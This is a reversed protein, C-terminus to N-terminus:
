MTWCTISQLYSLRDFFLLKAWLYVADMEKLCTRKESILQHNSRALGACKLFFLRESPQFRKSISVLERYYLICQNKLYLMGTERKLSPLIEEFRYMKRQICFVQSLAATMQTLLLVLITASYSTYIQASWSVHRSFFYCERWLKLNKGINSPLVLEAFSLLTLRRKWVFGATRNPFYCRKKSFDRTLQFHSVADWENSPFAESVLFLVNDWNDKM